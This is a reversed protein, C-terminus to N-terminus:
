ATTTRQNNFIKGGLLFWLAIVLNLINWVIGNLFAAEYSGTLDFIEGSMWGGLAMGLITATLVMGMRTGAERAPFYDRVILAYSPVIGGQSLGFLASILYLQNLGEFPLYLILALCQLASGLVLTGVGGIKDAIFGSALRSVVGFGLMISLMVAGSTAGYGLDVCLAVIHVQPMAMAVCCALGAIVLLTQITAPSATIRRTSSVSSAPAPADSMEPRRRLLLALPPILVLCMIGIAMHTPRWGYTEVGYQMIPPWITGALYNGSAVIAVAIGRRKLFWHSVDAVLPAFTVSSGCMGIFLAHALAFQWLTQAYSAAVYGLALSVSGVLLPIVIGYRDALRGMIVQGVAFGILMATFPLSANSRDVGFEAQIEPLVVVVSWLGVGGVTSLLLSIALRAWARPGDPRYLDSDDSPNTM